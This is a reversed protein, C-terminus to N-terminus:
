LLQKPHASKALKPTCNNTFVKHYKIVNRSGFYATYLNTQTIKFIM